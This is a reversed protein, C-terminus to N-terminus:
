KRVMFDAGHDLLQGLITYHGQWAAILLPKEHPSNELRTKCRLEDPIALTVDSCRANPDAGNELLLCALKEYGQECCIHLASGFLGKLGTRTAQGRTILTEVVGIHGEYCVAQMAKPFMWRSYYFSWNRKDLIQRLFSEFGGAAALLLSSELFESSCDQEQKESASFLVRAVREHGKKLAAQIAKNFNDSDALVEQLLLLRCVGLHGGSAAYFIPTLQCSDKLMPDYGEDALYKVVDLSGDYCAQHLVQPLPEEHWCPNESRIADIGRLMTSNIVTGANAPWRLDEYEGDVFEAHLSCNLRRLQLASALCREPQSLFSEERLCLDKPVELLSAVHFDFYQAAYRACPYRRLRTRLSFESGGPGGRLFQMNLYRLCATAMQAHGDAPTTFYKLIRPNKVGHDTASLYEQVSFHSPRVVGEDEILLNACSELVDDSAYRNMDERQMDDFGATVAALDILESMQLPRATFVVLTLSRQALAQLTTPRDDILSLIRRYTEYM